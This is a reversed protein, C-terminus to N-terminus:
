KDWILTELKIKFINKYEVFSSVKLVYLPDLIYWDLDYWSIIVYRSFNTKEWTLYNYYWSYYLRFDNDLAKEIYYNKNLDFWVKYVWYGLYDRCEVDEKYCNWELYKIKNTDIRSLLIEISEQALFTWISYNRIREVNLISKSVIIILWVLIVWFIIISLLIEVLLIWKKM